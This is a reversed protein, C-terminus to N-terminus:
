SSCGSVIKQLKQYQDQTIQGDSLMKSLEGLTGTAASAKQPPLTNVYSEFLSMFVIGIVLAFGLLLLTTVLPTLGAKNM